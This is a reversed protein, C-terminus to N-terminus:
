FRGGKKHGFGRKGEFDGFLDEKEVGIGEFFAEAEAKNEERAAQKQEKKAEREEDSLAQWEEKTLRDDQNAEREAIREAMWTDIQERQEATLTGDEVKSDLHESKKEQMETKKAEREQETLNAGGRHASVGVAGLTLGGIVIGAGLGALLNTKNITM